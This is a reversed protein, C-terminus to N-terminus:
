TGVQAPSIVQPPAINGKHTGPVVAFGGDGELQDTLQWSAVTLGSLLLGGARETLPAAPHIYQRICKMLSQGASLVTETAIFHAQESSM